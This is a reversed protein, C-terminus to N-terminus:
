MYILSYCPIFDYRHVIKEQHLHYMGSSVGILINMKQQLSLTRGSQLMKLLSGNKYYKLVISPPSQCVGLLLVVNVVFTLSM